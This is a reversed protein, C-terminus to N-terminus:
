KRKEPLELKAVEAEKDIGSPRLNGVAVLIGFALDFRGTEVAVTKIAKVVVRRMKPDDDWRAAAGRVAQRFKKGKGKEIRLLGQYIRRREEKGTVLQSRDVLSKVAM